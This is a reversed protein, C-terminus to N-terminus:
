VVCHMECRNFLSSEHVQRRRTLHIREAMNVRLSQEIAFVSKNISSTKESRRQTLFHLKREFGLALYVIGRARLKPGKEEQALWFARYHKAILRESRARSHSCILIGKYWALSARPGNFTKFKQNCFTLSWSGASKGTTSNKKVLYFFLILVPANKKKNAARTEDQTMDSACWIGAM